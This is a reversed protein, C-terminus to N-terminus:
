EYSSSRRLRSPMLVWLSRTSASFLYRLPRLSCWSMYTGMRRDRGGDRKESIGGRGVKGGELGVLIWSVLSLDVELEMPSFLFGKLGVGWFCLVCLVKVLM